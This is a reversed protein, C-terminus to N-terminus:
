KANEYSWWLHYGGAKKFGMKKYFKIAKKNNKPTMVQLYNVKKKKCIELFDGVLKSGIGKGRGKESVVLRMIEGFVTSGDRYYALFGELYGRIEGKEEAVLHISESKVKHLKKKKPLYSNYVWDLLRKQIPNAEDMPIVNKIKYEQKSIFGFQKMEKLAKETDPNTLTWRCESEFEKEFEKYTFNVKKHRIQKYMISLVGIKGLDGLNDVKSYLRGKKNGLDKWNKSVVERMAKTLEYDLRLVDKIDKNTAKRIRM